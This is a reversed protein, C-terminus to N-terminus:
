ENKHVKIEWIRDTEITAIAEAGCRIHVCWLIKEDDTLVLVEKKDCSAIKADKIVDSILKSGNMGIPRMRDGKEWKRLNLDGKIKTPDLYITDSFFSSPLQRIEHIIMKPIIKNDSKRSVFKFYTDERYVQYFPSSSPELNLQKGKQTSRLKELENLLSAKQGFQRLLEVKENESLSDYELFFLTENQYIRECIPSIGKELELQTEQFKAVLLLVSEELSHIHQQLEPLLINRLINRTYKNTKNSYDERWEIKNERAYSIIEEKSFPLLPRIYRHHEAPMCAMGMIGSKRALHM